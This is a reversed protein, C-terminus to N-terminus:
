KGGGFAAVSVALDNAALARVVHDAFCIRLELSALTRGFARAEGLLAYFLKGFSNKM